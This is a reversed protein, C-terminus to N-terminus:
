MMQMIHGLDCLYPGRVIIAGSIPDRM